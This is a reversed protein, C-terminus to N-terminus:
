LPPEEGVYDAVVDIDIVPTRTAPGRLMPPMGRRDEPLIPGPPMGRDAIRTMAAKIKQVYVRIEAPTVRKGDSPLSAADVDAPTYVPWEMPRDHKDELNERLAKGRECWQCPVVGRDYTPGQGVRVTGGLYVWGPEHCWPCFENGTENAHFFDPDPLKPAAIQESQSM